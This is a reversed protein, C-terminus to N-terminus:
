LSSRGERFSVRQATRGLDEMFAVPQLNMASLAATQRAIAAESSTLPASANVLATGRTVPGGTFLQGPVSAGISAFLEHLAELNKVGIKRTAEKNFVFEGRHVVGAPEYKGGDGTYGGTAFGRM